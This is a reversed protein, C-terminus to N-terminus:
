REKEFLCLNPAFVRLVRNAFGSMGDAFSLQFWTKQEAKLKYGVSEAAAASAIDIEVKSWSM